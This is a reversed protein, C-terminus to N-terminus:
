EIPIIFRNNTETSWQAQWMRGDLQDLLIFTYINQTPYLTFRENVEKDIDVLPTLSLNTEFRKIADTSWQVQWLKGNRTNLKIFTWMNQTAFLRYVVAEDSQKKQSNVNVNLTAENKKVQTQAFSINTALVIILSIIINKM